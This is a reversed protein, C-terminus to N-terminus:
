SIKFKSKEKANKLSKIEKKEISEIIENYKKADSLALLFVLEELSKAEDIKKNMLMEASSLKVKKKFKIKAFLFGALFALLYYIYEYEIEFDKEEKELLEEKKYLKKVEVAVKDFNLSKLKKEELDFYEIEISPITFNSDSVFAFKQSWSGVYGDKTLELNKIPKEEIVKVGDIDFHIAKIADFNASGDIKIELHYPEYSMISSKDKKVDASLRGVLNSKADKIELEVGKQRIIKVSYDEREVNDRGIVSNQISDKNTKKMMTDFFLKLDQAKKVYLLYEYTNVRKEDVISEDESFLLIRHEENDVVPNFEITYTQASDSFNCTYTLHIPENTMASRKNAEVSWEYTSAFLKLSLLLILFVKGLNNKM